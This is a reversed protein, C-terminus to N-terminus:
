SKNNISTLSDPVTTSIGLTKLFASLSSKMLSILLAWIHPNALCLKQM